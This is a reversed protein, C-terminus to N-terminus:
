IDDKELNHMNNVKFKTSSDFKTYYITGDITWYFSIKKKRLEELKKVCEVRTRTLFETILYNTGRLKKEFLLCFEESQQKYVQYHNTSPPPPDNVASKCSKIKSPLRHTRDLDADNIEVTMMHWLFDKVEEDTNEDKKAPLGHIILCSRRSYQEHREIAEELQAKKELVVKNRKDITLELLEHFKPNAVLVESVKEVLKTIFTEDNLM